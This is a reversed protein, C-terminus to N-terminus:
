GLPERLDEIHRIPFFAARSGDANVGSVEAPLPEIKLGDIGVVVHGDNMLHHALTFGAPGMGVILVRKGSPPLPLPRRLNLPNWRTLLSYIEFGWPLELVDKLTRTEAQPINVPEQKQYICSKMCDNCIRHGTAAAMPNDVFIMAAAAVPFGESKLKQFESIREELPCGALPVGFVTKKFGTAPAKEPLGHSCSDKGQEHCWICYHTQDLAGTLDTGADTLAFGERRRLHHLRHRTIGGEADTHLPVLNLFDLKRPAKFLVGEAHRTQGAPTHASWASYRLATELIAANAAEDQQWALVARAFDLETFPTGMAQALDKELAPGDISRADDPKVRNMAKRQVFLRKVAFLPALSHHRSALAQAEASVGFLRAVFDEVFPALELLLAAEARPELDTADIRAEALRFALSPDDAAVAEIFARDVRALGERHYLDPLSLGYGLSLPHEVPM